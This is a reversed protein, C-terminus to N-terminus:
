GTYEGGVIFPLSRFQGFDSATVTPYPWSPHTSGSLIRNKLDFLTEFTHHDMELPQIKRQSLKNGSSLKVCTKGSIWIKRPSKKNSNWLVFCKDLFKWLGHGLTKTIKTVCRVIKVVHTRLITHPSNSLQSLPFLLCFVALLFELEGASWCFLELLLFSPSVGPMRWTKSFDSSHYFVEACPSSDNSLDRWSMDNSLRVNGFNTPM